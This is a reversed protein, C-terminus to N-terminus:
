PAPPNLPAAEEVPLEFYFESGKGPESQVGVSGGMAEVLRQCIALGLGTGGYRRTTSSDAQSFPKFLRDLQDAAIGIGTDIVAIRVRLQGDRLARTVQITVSGHETFKVANGVLNFLIQRIRAADGWIWGPGDPAFDTRLEISRNGSLHTQLHLVEEVTRRLSFAMRELRVGGTELKSFDLIDDLVRLLSEACVRVSELYERQDDDLRTDLLLNTFGIVGNMPTRIEHSMVALFESKARDGTEAREKAAILEKEAKKRETIDLLVGDVRVALGEEDRAIMGRDEVWIPVASPFPLCRYESIFFARAAVAARYEAQVRQRDDPHLHELWTATNCKDDPLPGMLKEYKGIWTVEDVGLQHHYVAQGLAHVVGSDRAELDTKERWARLSNRRTRYILVGLFLSLLGAIGMSVQGAIGVGKLRKLYDAVNLDLGLLAVTQGAANRIPAVATLFTGYDDSFPKRSVYVREERLAALEAADEEPSDSEYSSLLPSLEMEWDFNLEEARAATDLGFRFGGDREILTYLYAIEPVGRHFRVLPDLAERYEPSDMRGKAVLVEHLDGNVLQAAARALRSLDERIAETQQEQAQFNLISISLVCVLFTAAGALLADRIPSLPAGAPVPPSPRSREM